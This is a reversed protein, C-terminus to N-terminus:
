NFIVQLPEKISEATEKLLRPHCNDPGMSKSVSLLKLRRLVEDTSVILKSVPTSNYRLDFIPLAGTPEKVFVSVFFDNLLNAKAENDQILLGTSNKLDSVGSKAKTKQRVYAWFDKPNEKMNKVINKEYKRKALRTVKTCKNRVKCNDQYDRRSQTHVYTNWARHKKRVAELCKRDM